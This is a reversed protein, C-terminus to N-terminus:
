ASSSTSRTTPRSARSALPDARPAGPDLAERRPQQHVHVRRRAHRLLNGAARPHDRAADGAGARHALRHQVGHGHRSRDPRLLRARTGPHAAAAPAQASRPRGAPLRPLPVRRGAPDGVGAQPRADGAAPARAAARSERAARVIRRDARARRGEGAGGPLLQLKDFYDRWEEPVAAPNELYNEYLEEVFPANGGFLYSNDLFQKMM